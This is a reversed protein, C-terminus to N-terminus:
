IGAYFGELKHLDSIRLNDLHASARNLTITENNLADLVAGVYPSGFIHVPERHRYSRVPQGTPEVKPLKARWARYAAYESKPLRGNDMLRRLIVEGSVGWTKRPRELWTDFQSVEKPREADRIQLLLSDPVLLHGAFENAEQEMGEHSDLDEADDIASTKHLLIHGLEHMLTFTQRTETAVKRVVIVPCIEHYLTFGLVPSEGPIQWKGNYGNSRFVLLGKSEVATRYSDFTNSDTLGLWARAIAAAKRPANRPIRPPRFSALEEEDFDELLSLYIERHREVREILRKLAPDLGHKQNALTRFQATHIRSEDVPGEEMFFLMGRGFFEALKSLQNPTLGRDGALVDRLTDPAIHLKSALAEPTIGFDACCWAIREPNIAHILEM